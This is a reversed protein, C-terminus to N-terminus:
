PSVTCVVDFSGWNERIYVSDNRKLRDLAVSLTSEHSYYQRGCLKGFEVCGNSGIAGCASSQSYLKYTSANHAFYYDATGAYASSAFGATLVVVSGMAALKMVAKKMDILKRHQHVHFCFLQKLRQFL